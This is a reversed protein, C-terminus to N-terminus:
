GGTSPPGLPAASKGRVSGARARRLRNVAEKGGMPPRPDIYWGTGVAYRSRMLAAAGAGLAFGGLHAAAGVGSLSGMMAFLIQFLIWPVLLWGVALDYGRSAYTDFLIAARIELWPSAVLVYGMLGAIAGSAGLSPLSGGFALQALDGAVMAAGYLVAFRWPGLRDEVYRGFVWLFLLNWALHFVSEHLFPSTVLQYLRFDEPQLWLHEPGPMGVFLAAAVNAVILGVTAFPWRSYAYEFGFPIFM